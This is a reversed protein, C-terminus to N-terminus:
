HISLVHILHYMADNKLFMHTMVHLDITDHM